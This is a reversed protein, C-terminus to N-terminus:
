NMLANLDLTCSLATGEFLQESLGFCFASDMAFLVVDLRGFVRCSFAADQSLCQKECTLLLNLTLDFLQIM